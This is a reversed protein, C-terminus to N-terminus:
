SHNLACYEEYRLAFSQGHNNFFLVANRTELLLYGYREGTANLIPETRYETTNAICKSCRCNAGSRSANESPTPPQPHTRIRSKRQRLCQTCAISTEPACHRWCDCPASERRRKRAPCKSQLQHPTSKPYFSNLFPTGKSLFLM